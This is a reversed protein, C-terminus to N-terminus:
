RCRGRQYLHQQSDDSNKFMAGVHDVGVEICSGHVVDVEVGHRCRCSRRRRSSM